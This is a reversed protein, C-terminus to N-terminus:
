SIILCQLEVRYISKWLWYAKWATLLHLFM